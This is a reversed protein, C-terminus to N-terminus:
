RRARRHARSGHRPGAQEGASGQTVGNVRLLEFTMGGSNIQQARGVNMGLAGGNHPLGSAQNAPLLRYGMQNDAFAPAPLLQLSLFTAALLSAAPRDVM